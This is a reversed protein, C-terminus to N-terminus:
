LTWDVLAGVQLATDWGVWALKEARYVVDNLEHDIMGPLDGPGALVDSLRASVPGTAFIWDKTAAPASEGTPAAGIYGAGIVIVNGAPTILLPQPNDLNDLVIGAAIAVAPTIHIMGRRGTAGIANELYSIGVRASVNTALSTLDADGLFKNFPLGDVGSVLAQEVAFSQTAELVIEARQRFGELDSAVSFTTCEETVYIAFSDFGSSAVEGADDKIDFSGGSCAAWTSPTDVTYGWFNVGGDWRGGSEDLVGPISLLNHLPASPAPADVRIRGVAISSM